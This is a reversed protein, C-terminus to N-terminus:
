VGVVLRVQGSNALRALSHLLAAATATDINPLQDSATLLLQVVFARLATLEAKLPQKQALQAAAKDALCSLACSVHIINFRSAYREYV